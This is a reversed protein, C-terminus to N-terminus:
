IEITEEKTEARDKDWKIFSGGKKSIEEILQPIADYHTLVIDLNPRGDLKVNKTKIKM